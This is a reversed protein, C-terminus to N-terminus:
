FELFSDVVAEKKIEDDSIWEPIKVDIEDEIWDALVRRHCFDGPKEYCLMITKHPISNYIEEATGNRAKMLAIYLQSYEEKSMRGSKYERIMHWTPVLSSIHEGAYYDPASASISVAHSNRGSRAYNSTYIRKTGAMEFVDNLIENDIETRFMSGHYEHMANLLEDAYKKRDDEKSM